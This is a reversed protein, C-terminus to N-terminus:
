KRLLSGDQVATHYKILANWLDSCQQKSQILTYCIDLLWHLISSHLWRWTKGESTFRMWQLVHCWIGALTNKRQLCTVMRLHVHVGIFHTLMMPETRINCTNMATHRRNEMQRHPPWPTKTQRHQDMPQRREEEIIWRKTQCLHLIFTHHHQKKNKKTKNKQERRVYTCVSAMSSKVQQM